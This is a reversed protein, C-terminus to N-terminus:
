KNEKEKGDHTHPNPKHEGHVHVCTGEPRIPVCHATCLHFSEAHASNVFLLALYFRGNQGNSLFTM